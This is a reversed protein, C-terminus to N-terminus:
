IEVACQFIARSYVDSPSIILTKGTPFGQWDDSQTGDNNYKMWKFKDDSLDNTIDVGGKFVHCSLTTFVDRSKFVNGRSSWIQVDITDAEIQKKTEDDFAEFTVQGKLNIHNAAITVGSTDNNVATIISAANVKGDAGVAEVVQAISAGANDATEKITALNYQTGKEDKTWAALSQVESETDTIRTGLSAASGRANTVELAVENATQRIQSAIRNTVNGKLTAVAFWHDGQWKYLTYPEYTDTNGNLDTIVDGNTYWYGFNGHIAVETAFFYVSQSSTNTDSTPEYNKDITIWKYRGVGNLRGWMYLYQPVFSRIYAPMAGSSIWDGGEYYWYRQLNSDYYVVSEDKDSEDWMNVMEAKDVYPYTETHLETPAYIMGEEVIDQAQEWTLGYALSCEGVSYKDITAIISSLEKASRQIANFSEETATEFTKIDVKTHLGDVVYEKFYYAGTNEPNDPDVWSTIPTLEDILRNVNATAENAVKVAESKMSAASTAASEAIAKAQATVIASNSIQTVMNAIDGELKGVVDLAGNVKNSIETNSTSINTVKNHAENAANVASIINIEATDMRSNLDQLETGVVSMQDASINLKITAYPTGDVNHLSSVKYGYNSVTKKAVGYLNAIVYDGVEVDLECRVQVAGSTAVLGYRADRVVDDQGGIFAASDVIVGFIDDGTCISIACVDKNLTVFLGTRDDGGYNGDAWEYYDAYGKKDSYVTQLAEISDLEERLGTIATIPHADHIERNTLLAHNLEDVEGLASFAEDMEINFAEVDEVEVTQVVEEATTDKVSESLQLNDYIIEEEQM